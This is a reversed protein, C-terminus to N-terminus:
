NLGEPLAEHTDIADVRDQMHVHWSSDLQRVKQPLEQKSLTRFKAWWLLDKQSRRRM